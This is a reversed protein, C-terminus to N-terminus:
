FGALPVRQRSPTGASVTPIGDESVDILSEVKAPKAGDYLYEGPNAAHYLHKNDIVAVTVHQPESSSLAMTVAHDLTKILAKETSSILTSRDGAKFAAVVRKAMSKLVTGNSLYAYDMPFLHSVEKSMARLVVYKRAFENLTLSERRFTERRAQVTEPNFIHGYKRQVDADIFSVNEVTAMSALVGMGDPLGSAVDRDDYEVKLLLAAGGAPVPVGVPPENTITMLSDPCLVNGAQVAFTQLQAPLNAVLDKFSFSAVLYGINM